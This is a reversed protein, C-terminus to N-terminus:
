ETGTKNYIKSIEIAQFYKQVLSGSVSTTAINELKYTYGNSCNVSCIPSSVAICTGNQIFTTANLLTQLCFFLSIRLYNKLM